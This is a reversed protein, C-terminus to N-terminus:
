FQESLISACIKATKLFLTQEIETPSNDLIIIAGFVQGEKIIPMIFKYDSQITQGSIIQINANNDGKKIVVSKKENLINIFDESLNKDEFEKYKETACVVKKADTIFCQKELAYSIANLVSLSFESNKEIPSYKKIILEGNETYFEVPDGAKLKISKRIGKPIVIRGLDDLRRIIGTDKM